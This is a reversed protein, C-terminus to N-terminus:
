KLGKEADDNGAKIMVYRKTVELVVGNCPTHYFVSLKSSDAMAVQQNRSVTEEKQVIPIAPAGIHQNLKIKIISAPVETEDLPASLNYRSLGLRATLRSMPVKRQERLSNVEKTIPNRIPPVGNKRLENKYSGILTQPSLNQNCAYMECLGCQSCFYTGLFPTVDKTVGTTAARMFLHPEIPHGLLNRPCLDTCMRCQCCSAMARKMNTSDKSCKKQIVPHNKDFVLIANSTKTIVEEESSLPGTMPGGHIYAANAVTIGGALKVVESIKMGIPVKVTKPEKVEGAITLYKYTVPQKWFIARYINYMTEVNFVAVGVEIPIKGPPVIKGTTEYITIVEDGAPYVESLFGIRMPAYFKKESIVENVAEVTQTYATKVAIIVEKALVAQAVENLAEVIEYAHKALLQRHVKLLPECEACNLIITEIRKDLKGHSPFGAGGAGIVGNEQIIQKLEQIEM